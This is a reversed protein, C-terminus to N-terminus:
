RPRYNPIINPSTHIHRVSLCRNIRLYPRVWQYTMEGRLLDGLYVSQIIFHPKVDLWSSFTLFVLEFIKSTKRTYYAYAQLREWICAM